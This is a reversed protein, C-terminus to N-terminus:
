KKMSSSPSLPFCSSGTFLFRDEVDVGNSTYAETCSIMESLICGTSWMDVASTYEKEIL